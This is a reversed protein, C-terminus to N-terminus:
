YLIPLFKYQLNSFYLRTPLLAGWVGSYCLKKMQQKNIGLMDLTGLFKGLHLNKRRLTWKQMQEVSPQTNYTFPHFKLIHGLYGQEQHWMIIINVNGSRAWKSSSLSSLKTWFLRINLLNSSSVDIRYEIFNLIKPTPRCFTKETERGKALFLMLQKGAIRM